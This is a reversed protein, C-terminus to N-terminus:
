FGSLVIKGITNGSAIWITVYSTIVSTIIAAAIIAAAIIAAAIIAAIIIANTITSFCLWWVPKSDIYGGM